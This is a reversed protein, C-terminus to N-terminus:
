RKRALEQPQDDDSLGAGTAGLVAGDREVAVAEGFLETHARARERDIQEATAGLRSLLDEVFALAVEGEGTYVTDAGAHHLEPLHRLYSARALVRIRPNAERAARIVEPSNAMGAATLILNNASTIGAEALTEPRTADGYVADIGEERMARVTDINLEVITPEIGSEKLLRAVTRGTPGYGILVARHASRAVRLERSVAGGDVPASRDLWTRLAPHANVWRVIPDITRYLLPNVVISVISSAVITNTAEMTFLGLERGLTSLIFSFEGIQALSVAVTISEKFPRRSMWLFAFAALPSAFLVIALTGAFLLPSDFLSAPDLLLGVSVFFLVAFADRMPLADSAARSSFDSRGVVMGALFAGLAMSVGFISASGVAIGLAIVLVTLTFLERSRTRAVRDLVWPIVRAGVIATFAVLGTVKLVTISLGLWIPQGVDGGGVIAPLLVIALVTFVDEVVLWGVAIHGAPTHLANYDSLVRVVVVTSAVALALGYVIGAPWGWGWSVALGAGLLTSVSCQMLAGPLAVGKVTLLEELHFQLGVGFMLLIVGIEALQQAMAGDVTLGPTNPGMLTGALLYGVIPSLGLRQTLYGLLLAGGLGATLTVILDYEHM